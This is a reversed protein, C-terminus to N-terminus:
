NQRRRLLLKGVRAFLDRTKLRIKRTPYASRRGITAPIPTQRRKNLTLADWHSGWDFSTCYIYSVGAIMFFILTGVIADRPTEDDSSVVIVVALILVLSALWSAVVKLFSMVRPFMATNRRVLFYHASVCKGTLSDNSGGKLAPSACYSSVVLSSLSVIPAGRGLATLRPRIQM